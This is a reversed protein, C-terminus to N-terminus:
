RTSYPTRMLAASGTIQISSVPRQNAPGSPRGTRAIPETRILM